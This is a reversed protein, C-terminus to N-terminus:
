TTHGDARRLDHLYIHFPDRTFGEAEYLHQATHNDYATDLQVGSMGAERARRVVDRVLARGVGRRRGAPSVYLDSLLWSPAMDLSSIMPYVQAFGLAGAGAESASASAAEPASALLILSDREKLREAIFARPRDPDQPQVEYFDLYLRFLGAAADLDAEEAVRIAVETPGPGNM